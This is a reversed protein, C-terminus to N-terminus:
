PEDEIFSRGPGSHDINFLSLVTAGVDAFTARTGLDAPPRGPSRFLVPAYERTHDTGTWTPDCGHDATIILADNYELLAGLDLDFAELARAYGPADNRHGYHMDFDVLNIFLLGERTRAMEDLLVRMGHRNDDTHVSRTVGKGAFINEIKGIGVVPLGAAMCLDLATDAFPEMSFDKRDATRQFAGKAGMFPRAIVRGIRCRDCLTRAVRCTDYLRPVPLVKEHAAIQFVSDASTYVIPFGTRQHEDGLEEIIVTGSAARNGLVGEFGAAAQFAELLDPPFGQPFTAFPEDVILGMLEWHGVTTDKGKSAEIMRGFSALPADTPSVGPVEIINGLGLRELNPVNLGGNERAVHLLTNAGEDGYRAADPLAGVGVSDLVIVVVRNM